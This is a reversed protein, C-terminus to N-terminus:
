QSNGVEDLKFNSFQIAKARQIEAKCRLRFVESTFDVQEIIVLSLAKGNEDLLAALSNNFNDSTYAFIEDLKLQSSLQRLALESLKDPTVIILGRHIFEAYLVLEGSLDSLIALERKTAKRGSLLPTNQSRLQSFPIDCLLSDAFYRLLQQSRYRRRAEKSKQSVSHSPNLFHIALRSDVSLIKGLLELEREKQILIIDTPKILQIKAIKLTRGSPGDVFGTTDIIILDAGKEKTADTILKTGIICEIFAKEPSVAGVFYFEDPEFNEIQGSILKMGITTPPGIWSQGVDADVVGVKLGRQIGESILYKCLTTKGTDVRGILLIIYGEKIVKDSLKVWDPSVNIPLMAIAACVM